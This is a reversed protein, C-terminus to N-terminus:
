DEVIVETSDLSHTKGRTTKSINKGEDRGIFLLTPAREYALNLIHLVSMIHLVSKGKENKYNGCIFEAYLIRYVVLIAM